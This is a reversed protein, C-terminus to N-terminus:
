EPQLALPYVVKVIGGDHEPFSLGYFAKVVCSVVGPNPLSSGGDQASSVTGQRDVTFRTVVRGELSPNDRLGNMYCSRFRGFNDRVVRQIVEPPLHGNIEPPGASRLQPGRTDHGRLSCGNCGKKGGWGGDGNGAPGIDHGFGTIDPNLGIGEGFGGGGIGTGTMGLGGFGAADGIDSGWMNGQASMPDAGRADARGWDAIPAKPDGVLMGIIGFSQAEQLARTRDLVVDRRDANGEKGWRLNAVPANEKGMKGEEGM